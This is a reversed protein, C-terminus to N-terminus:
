AHKEWSTNKFLMESPFSESISNLWDSDGNTLTYRVKGALSLDLDPQIHNGEARSGVCFLYRAIMYSILDAIELYPSYTPKVFEPSMVPLGNSLYAWLLTLRGGNFLNKAWGDNGTREFYFKPALNNSTTESVIRMLASNYVNSQSEIKEKPELKEGLNIGTASYINIYGMDNYKKILHLLENLLHIIPQYELHQLHKKKKRKETSLLEKMHLIWNNPNKTPSLKQKIKLLENEFHKKKEKGGSFAIFSYVFISKGDVTRQAEDGYIEIDGNYISQPIDCKVSAECEPCKVFCSSPRILGREKCFFVSVPPRKELWNPKFAHKNECLLSIDLLMEPVHHININEREIAGKRIFRLSERNIWHNKDPKIDRILENITDYNM